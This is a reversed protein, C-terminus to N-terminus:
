YICLDFFDVLEALKDLERDREVFIEHQSLLTENLYDNGTKSFSFVTGSSM